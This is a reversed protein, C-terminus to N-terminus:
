MEKWDPFLVEHPSDHTVFNLLEVHLIGDEKFARMVPQIPLTSEIDHRSVEGDPLGTFDFVDVELNYTATIKDGEFTYIIVDQNNVQPSFLVKM